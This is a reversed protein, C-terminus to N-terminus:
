RAFDVIGLAPSPTNVEIFREGFSEIPFHTGYNSRQMTADNCRRTRYIRRSKTLVTAPGNIYAVKDEYMTDCGAPVGGDGDDVQIEM